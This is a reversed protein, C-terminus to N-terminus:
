KVHAIFMSYITEIESKLLDKSSYNFYSMSYKGKKEKYCNMARGIDRHPYTKTSTIYKAQFVGYIEPM